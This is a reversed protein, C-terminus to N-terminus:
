YTTVCFVGDAGAISTPHFTAILAQQIRPAADEWATSSGPALRPDGPVAGGDGAGRLWLAVSLSAQFLGGPGHLALQAGFGGAWLLAACRPCSCPPCQVAGQLGKGHRTGNGHPFAGQQGWQAGRTAGSAMEGPLTVATLGHAPESSFQAMSLFNSAPLPTPAGGAGRAARGLLQVPLSGWPQGPISKGGQSRNSDRLM